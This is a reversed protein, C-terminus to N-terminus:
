NTKSSQPPPPLEIWIKELGENPIWRYTECSEYAERKLSYRKLRNYGEFFICDAFESAEGVAPISFSSPGLFLVRNGLSNQEIWDMQSWDFKRVVCRVVLLLDGDSAIFHTRDGCIDWHRKDSLLSCDQQAMNFAGLVGKQFVFYFIGDAYTIDLIPLNRSFIASVFSFKKWKKDGPRCTSILIYDSHVMLALFVCDASIPTSSFAIKDYRWELVPLKIVEDTFPSFVFFYTQRENIKRAFLVWGQKSACAKAGVFIKRHRKGKVDDEVFHNKKNSPDALKCVSYIKSDYTIIHNYSMMWPLKDLRQIGDIPLFWRKCVASVCIRDGWHLREM